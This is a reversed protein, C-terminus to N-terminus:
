PASARRNVKGGRAPCLAPNAKARNAAGSVCLGGGGGRGGWGSQTYSVFFAAAATAARATTAAPLERSTTALTVPITIRELTDESSPDRM